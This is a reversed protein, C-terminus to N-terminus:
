FCSFIGASHLISTASGARASGDGAVWGIRYSVEDQMQGDAPPVSARKRVAPMLATMM